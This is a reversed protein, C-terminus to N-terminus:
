TFELRSQGGADRLMKRLAGMRVQVTHRGREPDLEPWLEEIIREISVIRPSNLVLLALLSREKPATPTVDVDDVLAQFGGLVRFAAGVVAWHLVGRSPPRPASRSPRPQRPRRRSTGVDKVAFALLSAGSELSEM